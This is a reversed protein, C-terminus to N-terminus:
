ARRRRALGAGMLVMAVGLAGPEPVSPPLLLALELGEPAAALLQQQALPDSLDGTYHSFATILDLIDVDGDFDTDGDSFRRGSGNTGTFSSILTILEDLEVNGDLDTDGYETDKLALVLLDADAQDVIGDGNLDYDGSALGTNQSLLDLDEPTLSGDHDFDGLLELEAVPFGPFALLTQELGTGFFPPLGDVGGVDGTNTAFDPNQTLFMQWDDDANGDDKDTFDLLMDLFAGRDGPEADVNTDGLAALIPDLYGTTFLNFGLIGDVDLGPIDIIGVAIDHFVLTNGENTNFEFTSVQTIPVEATGGVGGVELFDTIADVDIGLEEAVGRSIMSLQAGTDFLLTNNTSTTTTTLAPDPSNVAPTLSFDIGGLLPLDETIPIPGDDGVQGASADVNFRSFTFSHTGNPVPGTPVTDTFGVGVQGINDLLDSGGTGAGSITAMEMITARGSMAPMGIIGNFSGINLSPATIMKAGTLDFTGVDGPVSPTGGSLDLTGAFSSITATHAATIDVPEFGGVGQELYPGEIAYSFTSFFDTHAGQALLFSSAGTDLLMTFGSGLEGPYRQLTSENVFAATVRPQDIAISDGLGFDIDVAAAPATAWGSVWATALLVATSPTGRPM